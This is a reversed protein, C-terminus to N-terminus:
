PDFVVLKKLVKLDTESCDSDVEAYLRMARILDLDCQPANGTSTTELWWPVYIFVCFNVFRELSM